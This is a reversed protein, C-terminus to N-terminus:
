VLMILITQCVTILIALLIKPTLPNLSLTGTSAQLIKRPTPGYTKRREGTFPWIFWRVLLCFLCIYKVFVKWNHGLM